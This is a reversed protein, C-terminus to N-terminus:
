YHPISLEIQFIGNEDTIRVLNKRGYLLVFRNRVHQIGLNSGSKKKVTADHNNQIRIHLLNGELWTNLNITIIETSEFLGHKIANEFLPQLIMHPVLLSLTEPQINKHLILRDQFRIKEISYYLESNELEESLPVTKEQNKEISLRLYSSLNLLMQQARDADMGMLAHISNLSNFIFHPQLQSKLLNLEGEKVLTKWEAEREIRAKFSTHYKYLYYSLALICYLFLALILRFPKATRLFFSYNTDQIAYTLLVNSTVHWICIFIVAAILHNFVVFSLQKSDISIYRVTYWSLLGLLSFIIFTIGADIISLSVPQKFVYSVTIAYIGSLPIWAIFYSYLNRKNKTLPHQM